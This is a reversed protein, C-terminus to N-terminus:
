IFNFVQFVQDQFEVEFTMADDPLEEISCHVLTEDLDLVLSYLPTSRTGFSTSSKSLANRRNSSASKSTFCNKFIFFNTFSYCELKLNIQFDYRTKQYKQAYV